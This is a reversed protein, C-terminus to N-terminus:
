IKDPDIKSYVEQWLLEAFAKKSGDTKALMQNWHEVNKRFQAITKEPNKVRFKRANKAITAVENARHKILLEGFANSGTSVPIGLKKVKALTRDHDGLYEDTIHAVLSPLQRVFTKRQASTLGHWSDTNFAALIANPYSGLPYNIVSKISEYLNYSRMWALPGLICDINGRQVSTVLDATSTRVPTAGMAAALRGGAGSVRLKIGKLDGLSKVMKSCFIGSNSTPYSALFTVGLKKFDKRCEECDILVTQLAAGGGAQPNAVFSFMEFLINFSPVQNPTYASLANTVDALGDGTSTLASKADFLQGGPVLKFVLSGDSAKKVREIFPPLVRSNVAHQPPLYTAYTLEKASTAQQAQLATLISVAAFATTVLSRTRKQM